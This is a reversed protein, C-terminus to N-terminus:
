RCTIRLLEPGDPSCGRGCVSTSAMVSVWVVVGVVVALLLDLEPAPTEPSKMGLRHNNSGDGVLRGGASASPSGSQSAKDIISASSAQSDTGGAITEQTGGGGGGGAGAEDDDDDDGGGTSDKSAASSSM